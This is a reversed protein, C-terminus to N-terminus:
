DIFDIVQRLKYEKAATLKFSRLITSSDNDLTIGIDECEQSIKRHVTMAKSLAGSLLNWLDGVLGDDIVDSDDTSELITTSDICSSLFPAVVELLKYEVFQSDYIILAPQAKHVKPTQNATHVNQTVTVPTSLIAKDLDKYRPCLIQSWHYTPLTKLEKSEDAANAM